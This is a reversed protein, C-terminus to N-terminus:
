CYSWMDMMNTKYGCLIANKWLLSQSKCKLWNPRGPLNLSLKHYLACSNDVALLTSRNPFWISIVCHDQTGSHNIHIPNPLLLFSTESPGQLPWLDVCSGSHLLSASYFLVLMMVAKSVTHAELTTEWLPSPRCPQSHNYDGPARMLPQITPTWLNM